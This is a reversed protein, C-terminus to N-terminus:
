WFPNIKILIALLLLFVGFLLFFIAELKVATVDEDTAPVFIFILSVIVSLMALITLAIIM